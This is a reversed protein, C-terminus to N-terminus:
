LGDNELGLVKDTMTWDTLNWDRLKRQGDNEPPGNETGSNKGQQM